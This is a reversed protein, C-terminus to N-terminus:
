FEFFNIMPSNLAKAIKFVTEISVNRKGNEIDSIYTRDLEALEALKEQSVNQNKRIAKVKEGYAVKIDM